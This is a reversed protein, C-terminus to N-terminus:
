LKTKINTLKLSYCNENQIRAAYIDELVLITPRPNRYINPIVCNRQECQCNVIVARGMCFPVSPSTFCLDYHLDCCYCKKSIIRAQCPQKKSAEIYISINVGCCCLILSTARAILCKFGHHM